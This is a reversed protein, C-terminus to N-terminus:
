LCLLAAGFVGASDGLENKTIHTEIRHNFVHPLLEEEIKEYLADINSVGGGVVICHPDFINIVNAVAEAFYKRLRQITAQAHEDSAARPVIKELTLSSNSLNTYFRELAPGSIVTEVCGIKGCYCQEGGDLLKNHGWEGAIGQAGELPNGHIVLGGGVGTGLIIGFVTDYGEAAGFMAEALAFCDADNMGQIPVGLVEELDALLPKGSLEQTNANKIVGSDPETAGPHAVGIIEPEQEVEANLNQVLDRIQNLIHEYGNERQTPVRRRAMPESPLAARVVAGEIKSGGLDIGLLLEEV